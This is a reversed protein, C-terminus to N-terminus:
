NGHNPQYKKIREVFEDQDWERGGLIVEVVEGRPNIIFTSPVSEVKITSMVVSSGVDLMNLFHVDRELLFEKVLHDDDDMAIGVVRFYDPDLIESLRQLSPMEQRCPPCWTGWVNLVTVVNSAPSFEVSEGEISTLAMVPLMQGLQKDPQYNELNDCGALVTIILLLWVFRTMMSGQGM